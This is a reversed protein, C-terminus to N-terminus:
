NGLEITPVSEEAPAKPPAPPNLQRQLQVIQRKLEANERRLSTVEDTPKIVVADAPVTDGELAQRVEPSELYDGSKNQFRGLTAKVNVLDSIFAKVGGADKPLKPAMSIFFILYVTATGLLLIIIGRVLGGLFNM